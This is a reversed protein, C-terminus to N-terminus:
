ISRRASSFPPGFAAMWEPSADASPNWGQLARIRRALTEITRCTGNRTFRFADM